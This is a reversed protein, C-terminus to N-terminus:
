AADHHVVARGGPVAHLSPRRAVRGPQGRSAPVPRSPLARPGPVLEATEAGAWLRARADDAVPGRLGNAAVVGEIMDSLVAPWPRGRFRVAVVPQGVGGRRLTRDAGPLRPPSRFSPAQLGQRRATHGLARVATAFRIATAEVVAM